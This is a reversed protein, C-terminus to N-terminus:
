WNDRLNTDPKAKGRELIAKDRKKISLDKQGMQFRLLLLESKEIAFLVYVYESLSSFFFGLSLCFLSCWPVYYQFPVEITTGILISTLLSQLTINTISSSTEEAKKLEKEASDKSIETSTIVKQSFDIAKNRLNYSMIAFSASLGCAFKLINTIHQKAKDLFFSIDPFIFITLIFISSALLIPVFLSFKVRHEGNQLVERIM